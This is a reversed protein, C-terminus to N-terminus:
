ISNLLISGSNDTGQPARVLVWIEQSILAQMDEDIAQLYVPVLM